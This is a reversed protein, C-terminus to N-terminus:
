DYSQAGKKLSEWQELDHGFIVTAGGAEIRQIEKLSALAM